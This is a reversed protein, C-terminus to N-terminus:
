GCWVSSSAPQFSRLWGAHHHRGARTPPGPMRLLAPAGAIPRSSRSSLCPRPAYREARLRDRRDAQREGAPRRGPRVPRSPSSAAPGRVKSPGSRRRPALNMAEIGNRAHRPALVGGIPRAAIPGVQDSQVVDESVAELFRRRHRRCTPSPAPQQHHHRVQQRLYRGLRMAAACARASAAPRGDLHGRRRRCLWLGRQHHQSQRHGRSLFGLSTRYRKANEIVQDLMETLHPRNM